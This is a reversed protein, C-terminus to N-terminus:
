CLDFKWGKSSVSGSEIPNEYPRETPNGTMPNRDEAFKEGVSASESDFGALASLGSSVGVSDGDDMYSSRITTSKHEPPTYAGTAEGAGWGYHGSKHKM